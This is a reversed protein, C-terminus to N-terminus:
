KGNEVIALILITEALGYCAASPCSSAFREAIQSRRSRAQGIPIQTIMAM